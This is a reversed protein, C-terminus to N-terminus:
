DIKHRALFSKLVWFYKQVEVQTLEDLNFLFNIEKKITDNHKFTIDFSIIKNTSNFSYNVNHKILFNNETELCIASFILKLLDNKTKM